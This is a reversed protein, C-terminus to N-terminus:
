PDEHLKGKAMTLYYDRMGLVRAIAERDPAAAMRLGDLRRDLARLRHHIYPALMPSASDFLERGCLEEYPTLSMAGPEARWVVYAHGNCLCPEERVIRYGIRCLCRRVEEQETHACLVLAAGLLRDRGSTLIGAITRGGMGTVSICGCAEDLVQLGDGCRLSVRDALSRKEVERAARSLAKESIDALIMRECVGQELLHCPLLAHDTGIDAGLSCPSWLSAALALREDLM